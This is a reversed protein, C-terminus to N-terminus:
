CFDRNNVLSFFENVQITGDCTAVLRLSDLFSIAFVSKRYNNYSWRSEVRSCFFIFKNPSYSRNFVFKISNDNQNEVKWILLKQDRGGSLFTSEDDLVCLSRM